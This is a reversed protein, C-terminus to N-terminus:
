MFGEDSMGSDNLSRSRSVNSLESNDDSCESDTDYHTGAPMILQDDGLQSHDSNSSIQLKKDEFNM